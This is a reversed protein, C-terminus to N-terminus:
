LVTDVNRDETTRSSRLDVPALVSHPSRSSIVRPKGGGGVTALEVAHNLAMDVLFSWHGMRMMLVCRAESAGQRYGWIQSETSIGICGCFASIQDQSLRGYSCAAKSILCPKPRRGGNWANCMPRKCDKPGSCAVGNTTKHETPSPSASEKKSVIRACSSFVKLRWRVPLDHSPEILYERDDESRM